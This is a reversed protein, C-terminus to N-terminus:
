APKTTEKRILFATFLQQFFDIGTPSSKKSVKKDIFFTDSIPSHFIDQLCKSRLVQSAALLIKMSTM